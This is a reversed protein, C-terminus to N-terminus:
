VYSPQNHLYFYTNVMEAIKTRRVIFKSKNIRARWDQWESAMNGSCAHTYTPSCNTLEFTLTWEKRRGNSSQSAGHCTNLYTSDQRNKRLEYIIISEWWNYKIDWFYNPM